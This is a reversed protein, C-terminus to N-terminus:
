FKAFERLSLFLFSVSALNSLFTGYGTPQMFEGLDTANPQSFLVVKRQPHNPLPNLSNETKYLGCILHNESNSLLSFGNM